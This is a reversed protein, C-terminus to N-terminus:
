PSWRDIDPNMGQLTRCLYECIGTAVIQAKAPDATASLLLATLYAIDPPRGLKATHAIHQHMERLLATDESGARAPSAAAFAM